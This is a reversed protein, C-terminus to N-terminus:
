RSIVNSGVFYPSLQLLSGEGDVKSALKLDLNNGTNRLWQSYIPPELVEEKPEM